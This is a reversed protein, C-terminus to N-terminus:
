DECIKISIDGLHNGSEGTLELLRIQIRGSDPGTFSMSLDKETIDTRGSENMLIFGDEEISYIKVNLQLHYSSEHPNIILQYTGGAVVDTNWYPDVEGWLGVIAPECTTSLEGQASSSVCALISLILMTPALAILLTKRQRM